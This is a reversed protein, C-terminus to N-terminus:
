AHRERQAAKLEESFAYIAEVLKDLVEILRALAAYFREDADPPPPPPIPPPDPPPPTPAQDGPDIPYHWRNPDVMGKPQWAPENRGGSDILCDFHEGNRFVVIDAAFGDCNTGDPKALLGANQFRLQWAVRKTIEFAGCPGSLNVGRRVLQGKVLEVIWTHDIPSM